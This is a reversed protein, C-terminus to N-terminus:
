PVGQSCRLAHALELILENTARDPADGRLEHRAGPLDLFRHAAANAVSTAADADRHGAHRAPDTDRAALRARRQTEDLLCLVQASAAADALLPAFPPEHEGSRFNGELILARGPIQPALLFLMAFSADSLARSAAADAAGLEDLLPEKIADKALLPLGLQRALSQAFRSKGTAPLGTVIILYDWRKLM